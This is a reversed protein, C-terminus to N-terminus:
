LSIVKFGKRDIWISFLRELVFPAITWPHGLKEIVLATEEASKRKTYGGDQHFVPRDKMFEMCPILCNSVYDQYIERRAIFHNEYIAYTVEDRFRIFHKLEKIAEAWPQGHWNLAMRLPEHTASYPTLIAIDFETGLIKDPTLTKDLLRLRTQRKEHLRWSCISILDEDFTPVLRAIIENEFYDTLTENKHPRAFPYLKDLQDDKYYIQTFNLTM